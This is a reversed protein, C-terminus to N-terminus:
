NAAAPAPRDLFVLQQNGPAGILAMARDPFLAFLQEDSITKVAPKQVAVPPTSHAAIVPQSIPRHRLAGPLLALALLCSIAALASVQVVRRRRTRQRLAAIGRELSQRRFDAETESTLIDNLLDERDNPNM